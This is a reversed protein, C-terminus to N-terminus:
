KTFPMNFQTLLERAEEDFLEPHKEYIRNAGSAMPSDIYIPFPEVEGSAFMDVLHYILQQTRGVAFAPVLARGRTAVVTKLIAKLEALTAELSRHDRDGYTSEMVVADAERFCQSDNLIPFGRPGIDGSFVVTKTEKGDVVQLGISASGLMHGAEHYIAKVGPAVDVALNYGVPRFRRLVSEVDDLTFLPEIPDLGARARKKNQREADHFQVKAADRLILGALDITAPTAFIHGTFGARDLMPLRGCHDLHGHTLVVADLTSARIQAPIKNKGEVDRRGQFQGCDVLLRSKGAEVLYCSGTVVGGAAGLFTLRM